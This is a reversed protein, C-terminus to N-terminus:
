YQNMWLLEESPQLLSNDMEGGQLATARNNQVGVSLSELRREISLFLLGSYAESM